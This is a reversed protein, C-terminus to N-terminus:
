GVQQLQDVPLAQDSKIMVEIENGEREQIKEHHVRETIALLM